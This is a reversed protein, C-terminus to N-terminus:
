VLIEFQGKYQIKGDKNTDILKFYDIYFRLERRIFTTWFDQGPFFNIWNNPKGGIFAIM